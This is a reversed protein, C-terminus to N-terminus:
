ADAVPVIDINTSAVGAPLDVYDFEFDNTIMANLVKFINTQSIKNTWDAYDVGAEATGSLKFLVRLPSDLNQTRSIQFTGPLLGAERAPNLATVHIDSLALALFDVGEADAGVVAIPNAFNLPGTVYGFLFAGLTYSDPALNVLSYRGDSDTFTWQFNAAYSNNTTAGNHVRVGPLPNGDGDAVRGSIRLTNPSGVTIVLHKSTVGGKMDSVECRVVYQGAVNWSKSVTASNDGFTGDGFDWYYAVADGNEDSAAATFNVATGPAVRTRNATVEVTPAVNAPFRGVNVVVDIWANSGTAGRAIPTIHAGAPVDSFTRGVVLAADTLGDPTGPTTDLLQSTGLTLDWRNWHLEVGNQSWPNGVYKSRYSVWYDRDADKPARLLYTRNSFLPPSDHAYLRNTSSGVASYVNADPIWNLLYKPLANFHGNRGGGSGMTDFIDGYEVDHGSGIVSDFGILSDIDFPNNIPNPLDPRRTNWFNAHFLGYNHGLEHCVVGLGSSQLWVGSAGVAGLGGFNFGPVPMFRVIDRDYNQPYGADRAVQRADSMLAGPGNLAYYLKPQPLTLLPTITPILTTKNFSSEDYFENVQNMLTTAESETIPETPDDPFNVRMFLVKKPGHTWPSVPPANTVGRGSLGYSGGEALLLRKNLDSVHSQRCLHFIQNGYAVVTPQGIIKTPLGSVSCIPDQSPASKALIAQAEEPELVRVPDEHVALADNIAIGHLTLEAQSIQHLRYGYVFARYSVSDLTAYRLIPGVFEDQGELPVAGFVSYSGRGSVRQELLSAIEPPLEERWKWPAALELARKPDVQILAALAERRAAALEKGQALLAAKDGATAASFYLEAWRAFRDHAAGAQPATRGQGTASAPRSPSNFALPVVTTRAGIVTAPRPAALSPTNVQVGKTTLSGWNRTPFFQVRLGVVVAFVCIAAAGVVFLKRRM